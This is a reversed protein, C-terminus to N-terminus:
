KFTRREGSGFIVCLSDNDLWTIDALEVRGATTPVYLQGNSIVGQESTHKRLQTLNIASLLVESTLDATIAFSDGEVISGSITAMRGVDDTKSLSLEDDATALGFSSMGQPVCVGYITSTDVAIATADLTDAPALEETPQSDTTKQGGCAVCLALLLPTTLCLIRKM